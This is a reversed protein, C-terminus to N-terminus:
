LHLSLLGVELTLAEQVNTFLRRQTTELLSLNELAQEPTPRAAVERTAEALNAFTKLDEPLRMTQLWVDRLWWHLVTLMDGRQRRYEAEIAAKLEAELRERVDSELEEYRQLPSKATLDETIAQRL